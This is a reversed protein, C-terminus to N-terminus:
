GHWQTREKVYVTIAEGTKVEFDGLKKSILYEPLWQQIEADWKGIKTCNSINKGIEKATSPYLHFWSIINYGPYLTVNAKEIIDGKLVFNGDEKLYIFYGEGPKISFGKGGFGVVHSVYRQEAADWKAVIMCNPIANGLDEATTISENLLSLGMTNWGEYLYYKTGTLNGFVGYISFSSINAEVWNEEENLLSAIRKWGSGNWEYLAFTTENTNILERDEYYVRIDIWSNSSKNTINVFKELSIIHENISVEGKEVGKVMIGNGYTFSIKTEYCSLTLNRIINGYSDKNSSFCTAKCGNINSFAVNDMEIGCESMSCNNVTVNMSDHAYIGISANIISFNEILVNSSNIEIAIGGHGDVCPDGIIKVSKNVVFPEYVGSYVKVIGGEESADIADQISSFCIVGWGPTSSNYNEDVRTVNRVAVSKEISGRLGYEDTVTLNVIYNGGTMYAHTVSVGYGKNGDGFDWTYNVISGDDQCNSIFSIDEGIAPMEPTYTFNAIPPTNEPQEFINYYIYYEGGEEEAWAIFVTGNEATISPTISDGPTDTIRYDDILTIGSTLMREYYIEWNGDRNDQWAVHIINGDMAVDVNIADGDGNSIIRENNFLPPSGIKMREYYISYNGNRNDQWFIHLYGDNDAVAVCHQSSAIDNTVRYIGSITNAFLLLIAFVFIIKRM